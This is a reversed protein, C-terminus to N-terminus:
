GRGGFFPPKALRNKSELILLDLRIMLKGRVLGYEEFTFTDDIIAVAVVAPLVGKLKEPLYTDLPQKLTDRRCVLDKGLARCYKGIIKLARYTRAPGAM